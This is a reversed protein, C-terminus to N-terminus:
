NELVEVREEVLVGRKVDQTMERVTSKGMSWSKYVVGNTDKRVELPEVIRIPWLYWLLDGFEPEGSEFHRSQPQLLGDSKEARSSFALTERM